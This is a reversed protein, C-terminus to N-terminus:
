FMRLTPSLLISGIQRRHLREKWYRSGMPGATQPPSSYASPAAAAAHLRYGELPRLLSFLPRSAAPSPFPAAPSAFDALHQRSDLSFSTASASADRQIPTSAHLPVLVPSGERDLAISFVTGAGLFRSASQPVATESRLAQRPAPAHQPFPGLVSSTESQLMSLMQLSEDAVGAGKGAGASAPGDEAQMSQQFEADLARISLLHYEDEGEGEGEGLTAVQTAVEKPGDAQVNQADEHAHISDSSASAAPPEAAQKEERAPIPSLGPSHLYLPGPNRERAPTQDERSSAAAVGPGPPPKRGSSPATAFIDGELQGGRGRAFHEGRPQIIITEAEVVRLEESPGVTLDTQTGVDTAM